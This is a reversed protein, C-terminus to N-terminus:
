MERLIETIRPKDLVIPVAGEPGQGVQVPARGDYDWDVNAVLNVINTREIGSNPHNAAFSAPAAGLTFSFCLLSAVSKRLVNKLAFREIAEPKM